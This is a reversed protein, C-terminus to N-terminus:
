RKKPQKKWPQKASYLEAVPALAKHLPAFMDKQWEKFHEFCLPRGNDDTRAANSRCIKCDMLEEKWHSGGTVPRAKVSQVGRKAM